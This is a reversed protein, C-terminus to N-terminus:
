PTTDTQLAFTGLTTAAIIQWDTGPIQIPSSRGANSSPAISNQGLQGYDNRGWAWLTGDTKIFGIHTSSRMTHNMSSTPWTTGPIQVPSSYSVTSNQALQGLDSDGWIWLTGDTKTCAHTKSFAVLPLAWTTDSGVQVPSSYNTRNNQALEGKTNYGWSWLTGDTKTAMPGNSLGSQIYNWTTGPIQVPSSRQTRDNQGLNGASNNGMAWLTGDTKTMYSTAQDMAVKNWDTASGVQVPSDKRAGAGNNNHGLGGQWGYGWSWLTGDTKVALMGASSVSYKTKNQSWTTDTGVQTPSSQDTSTPQNQGLAGSSNEGWTWLTGDDKTAAANYAGAQGGMMHLTTWNGDSGVQVPSSKNEADSATNQGLQGQHNRGWSYLSLGTDSTAFTYATGAYSTENSDVIFGEPIDIQYTKNNQLESVLSGLALDKINSITASSIGWSQVTTGAAGSVANVLKITATGSGALIKKNFTIGIGTDVNALPDSVDPNYFWPAISEGVGTLSSGDGKFTTATLVGSVNIGSSNITVGLGLTPTGTSKLNGDFSTATAVGTINAGDPLNPTAGGRGSLNTVNITSM